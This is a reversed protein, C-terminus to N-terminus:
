FSAESSLLASAIEVVEEQTVGMRELHEYYRKQFDSFDAREAREERLRKVEEMVQEVLAKDTPLGAV